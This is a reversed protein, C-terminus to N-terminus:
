STLMKSLQLLLHAEYNCPFGYNTLFGVGRIKTTSSSLFFHISNMFDRGRAVRTERQDFFQVMILIGM